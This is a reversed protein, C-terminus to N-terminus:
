NFSSLVVGMAGISDKYMNRLSRFSETCPSLLSYPPFLYCIILPTLNGSALM